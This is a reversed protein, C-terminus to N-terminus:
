HNAPTLETACVFEVSVKKSISMMSTAHEQIIRKLVSDEWNMMEETVGEGDFQFKVLFTATDLFKM